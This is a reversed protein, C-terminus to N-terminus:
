IRGNKMVKVQIVTWRPALEKVAKVEHAVGDLVAKKATNITEYDAPVAYLQENDTVTRGELAVQQDSWPTFRVNGSWIESLVKKVNGLEDAQSEDKIEACIVCRKWIM